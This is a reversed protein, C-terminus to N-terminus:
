SLWKPVQKRQRNGLIPDITWLRLNAGLKAPCSLFIELLSSSLTSTFKFTFTFPKASKFVVISAFAVQMTTMQLRCALSRVFFRVLSAARSAVLENNRLKSWKQTVKARAVLVGVAVVFAGARASNILSLTQSGCSCLATCRLAICHSHSHTALAFFDSLFPAQKCVFWNKTANVQMQNSFWASKLALIVLSDALLHSRQFFSNISQQQPRFAHM